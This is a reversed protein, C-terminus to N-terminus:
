IFQNVLEVPLQAFLFSVIRVAGCQCSSEREASMDNSIYELRFTTLYLYVVGDEVCEEISHGEIAFFTYYSPVIYLSFRRVIPVFVSETVFCIVYIIFVM